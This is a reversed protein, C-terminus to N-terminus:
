GREEAVIKLTYQIGPMMGKLGCLYIHAGKDLLEFSEDNYDEIKEQVHMKGGRKNKHERSLAIDYRFNKPYQKTYETIEDHYLLSDINAVGLFLWALGGFRFSPVDDMFKRWLYGRFPSILINTHNNCTNGALSVYFMSSYLSLLNMKFMNYINYDM